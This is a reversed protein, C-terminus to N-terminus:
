SRWWRAKGPAGGKAEIKARAIKAKFDRRDEVESFDRVPGPRAAANRHMIRTLRSNGIGIFRM